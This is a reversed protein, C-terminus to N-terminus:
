DRDICVPGAPSLAIANDEPCHISAPISTGGVTPLPASLYGIRLLAVACVSLFTGLALRERM